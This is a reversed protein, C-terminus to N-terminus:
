YAGMLGKPRFILIFIIMIWIFIYAMSSGFFVGLFSDALGLLLSGLIAGPISGLGGLAIVMFAKVLPQFGISPSISYAPAMLVGAAGALGFGIAFVIAHLSNLNVGQIAAAVKDEEVARMALGLKTRHIMYYVIAVLIAGAVIVLIRYNSIGTGLITVSGSVPAEVGRPVIGFGLYAFGQLALWLGVTIVFVQGLAAGSPRILIREVVAGFLGVTMTVLVLTLYFNLGAQSYLFFALVAGIMYVAGHAMNLVGMIGYMLTMGLALLCYFAGLNLGVVLAQLFLTSTM